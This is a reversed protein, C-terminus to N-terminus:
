RSAGSAVKPQAAIQWVDEAFAVDLASDAGSALPLSGTRVDDCFHQAQLAFAWGAQALDEHSGDAHQVHVRASRDAAFPPSLEVSVTAREFLQENREHWGAPMRQTFSAIVPVQSGALRGLFAAGGGTLTVHTAQLSEGALFRTLNLTHSFVNLFRDFPSQHAPDGITAGVAFGLDTRPEATMLWDSGAGDDGGDMAIRVLVLAGAAAGEARWAAIRARAAGVGRDHRKMYGVAFTRAAQQALAVNARADASSLAMPKECLVHKGARLADAVIAATQTRQTVVVVADVGPDAVLERHTRHVAAINWRQAVAQALDTRLDALAVVQADPVAAFTAIHATQAVRGAGVVGIRLPAASV